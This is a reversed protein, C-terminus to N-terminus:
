AADIGLVARVIGTKAFVERYEAQPDSDAVIGASAQWYARGNAVAVSRLIICSDLDGDFDLHAVSGAYFGRAVPELRDILQMASIKPTGTVTGAPFSAAFLDLADKDDRLEGVVNSVIHMVHSYREIVMLEDVRVSGTRCVAGLDNRALDVLMVHEAREKEDALLEDAIRADRAPDPDRPRTGALPRIRATRGDLRVLFEPSAGFVARGDHEVFFMYPSPNRARIQRYFDFPTGALACSFRIGVQLQYADGDFIFRQAQAVRDLFTAEDMSAGVPGDARVAGPVTPRADLLRAVYADLRADVDPREREERAFGILTVRHTFHDFVLWTGPIVVLADAFRVDSPPTEGAVQARHLVPELARAADYTFVCVAGGPFPLDSRDLSYRGIAARLRDLMQPDRDFSFSDLYDIGVFSFRSIRETGEVSELLCSRGPQALALYASIPTISDAVFSRTSSTLSLPEDATTALM